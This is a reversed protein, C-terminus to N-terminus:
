IIGEPYSIISLLNATIGGYGLYDYVLSCSDVREFRATMINARTLVRFIM